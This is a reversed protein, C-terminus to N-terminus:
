SITLTETTSDYTFTPSANVTAWTGDSKLYKSTEGSAPAPVLGSTGAASSQAGTFTSYTTDTFVADSPVSKGLTYTTATAVGNSAIYVPNTASGVATSATHTVATSTQQYSSLDVFGSLVDYKYTSGSTNIIVVNTGAPYSKGAGEVFDATTTFSDSVNYVKGENASSLAPLSAFAVSGAAKYVSSVASDIASKVAVGSQANTSTGDYTQDVTPISISAWSTASGNTTLYKGSNGTQSPIETPIDAWSANTGNTTLFKGSQSTQSPLAEVTGWSLASGNTTLFKGSNGSQTPLTDQKGSLATYAGGSTLAATSGSTVSDTTTPITPKDTLDNYSIDEDTVMYLENPNPTLGEYQQKTLKHIVLQSVDTTTTM